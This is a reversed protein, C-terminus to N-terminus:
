AEPQPYPLFRPVRKEVFSAVGEKFDPHKKAEVVLQQARQRSQELTGTIDDYV